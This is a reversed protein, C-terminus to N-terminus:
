TTHLWPHPQSFLQTPANNKRENETYLLLLLREIGMVSKRRNKDLSIMKWRWNGKRMM